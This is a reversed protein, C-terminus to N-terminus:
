HTTVSDWQRELAAREEAKLMEAHVKCERPDWMGCEKHNALRELTLGLLRRDCYGRPEIEKM